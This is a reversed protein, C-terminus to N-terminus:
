ESRGIRVLFARASAGKPGPLNAYEHFVDLMQKFIANPEVTFDEAKDSEISPDIESAFRGAVLAIKTAKVRRLAERQQHIVLGQQSVKARLKSNELQLEGIESM